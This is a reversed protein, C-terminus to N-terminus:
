ESSMVRILHKPSYYVNEFYDGCPICPNRPFTAVPAVSIFLYIYILIVYIIHWYHLLMDSWSICSLTRWRHELLIRYKDDDRALASGEVAPPGGARM